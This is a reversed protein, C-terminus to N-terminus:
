NSLYISLYISVHLYLSMYSPSIYQGVSFTGRVDSKLIVARVENSRRVREM